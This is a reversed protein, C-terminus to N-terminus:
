IKKKAIGGYVFLVHIPEWDMQRLWLRVYIVTQGIYYPIIMTVCKFKNTENWEIDTSSPLVDKPSLNSYKLNSSCIDTSFTCTQRDLQHLAGCLIKAYMPLVDKHNHISVIKMNYRLPHGKLYSMLDSSSSIIDKYQAMCQLLGTCTTISNKWTNVKDSHIFSLFSTLSM